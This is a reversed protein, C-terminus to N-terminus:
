LKAGFERHSQTAAIKTAECLTSSDSQLFNAASTVGLATKETMIVARYCCSLPSNLALASHRPPKMGQSNHRM